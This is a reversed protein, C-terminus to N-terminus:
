RSLALVVSTERQRAPISWYTRLLRDTEDPPQLRFGHREYFRIAWAAAAWTGVLLPGEARAALTTLLAGGIGRGQLGSRVYAHRILRADRVRQIGMVGDLRDSEDWGWFVVGAAIEARLAPGTMYPEHWCDAPIVGRYAQAAENIIAEIAPVDADDCPRIMTTDGEPAGTAVATRGSLRRPRARGPRPHIPDHPARAGPAPPLHRSRRPRRHRPRHGNGPPPRGPRDCAAARAAHARPAPHLQAEAILGVFAPGAATRTQLRVVADAVAQLDRAVDGTDPDRLERGAAELYLDMCLAAKTPWRRYLTTKAVGSRAAVKEMTLGAYGEGGLISRAASLARERTGARPTPGSRM